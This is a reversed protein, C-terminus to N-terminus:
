ATSSDRSQTSSGTGDGAGAAAISALAAAAILLVLPTLLCCCETQQHRRYWRMSVGGFSAITIGDTIRLILDDIFYHGRGSFPLPPPATAPM